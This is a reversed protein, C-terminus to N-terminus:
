PATSSCSRGKLTSSPAAWGPAAAAPAGPSYAPNGSGAGGGFGPIGLPDEGVGNGGAGGGFGGNGGSTVTPTVIIGSGGGGGGGWAGPGSQGTSDDLGTGGVGGNPDGGLGVISLQKGLVDWGDEGNGNFGGGGGGIGTSFAPSDFVGSGGRAQNGVVTSDILTLTGQNFVAGGLGAAGGGGGSDYSGSGGNAGLAFGGSLTLNNLTLNASPFVDFLRFNLVQNNPYDAPNVDRAITVGSNGTLGDITLNAGIAFASPGNSTNSAMTLYITQGALSPDFTITNLNSVNGSIQSAWGGPMSPQGLSSAQGSNSALTIAERLTLHSTDTINDAISNVTLM